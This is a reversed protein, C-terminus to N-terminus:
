DIMILLNTFRLTIYKPLGIVLYSVIKQLYVCSNSLIHTCFNLTVKWIQFIM